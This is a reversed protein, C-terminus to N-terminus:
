LMNRDFLWRQVVRCAEAFDEMRMAEKPNHSGCQNRIFVLGAPIGAESFAVPDHGGLGDIRRARVRAGLEEHDRAHRSPTRNLWAQFGPRLCGASRAIPLGAVFRDWVAIRGIGDNAADAVVRESSAAVVVKATGAARARVRDM